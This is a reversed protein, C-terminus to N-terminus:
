GVKCRASQLAEIMEYAHHDNFRIGYRSPATPSPQQPETGDEPPEAFISNEMILDQFHEAAEALTACETVDTEENNELITYVTFM